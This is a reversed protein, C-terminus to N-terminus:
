LEIRLEHQGSLRATLNRVATTLGELDLRDIHESLRTTSQVMQALQGRQIDKLTVDISALTRLVQERVEAVHEPSLETLLDDTRALVEEARYVSREVSVGVDGLDLREMATAARDARELNAVAMHGWHLGGKSLVVIATIGAFAAVALGLVALVWIGQAACKNWDPERRRGGGSGGGAERHAPAYVPGRM